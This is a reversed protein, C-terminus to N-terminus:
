SRAEVGLIERVAARLTPVERVVLSPPPADVESGAPIWMRCRDKAAHVQRAISDAVGLKGKIYARPSPALADSGEIAVGAAFFPDPLRSGSLLAIWTVFLPLSASAGDLVVGRARSSFHLDTRDWPLDYHARGVAALRQLHRQWGIEFGNERSIDVWIRGDGPGTSVDVRVSRFLSRGGIDAATFLLLSTSAPTM